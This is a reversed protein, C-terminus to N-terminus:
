VEMSERVKKLRPWYTGVKCEFGILSEIVGRVKSSEKVGERGQGGGGVEEWGGWFCWSICGAKVLGLEKGRVGAPCVVEGPGEHAVSHGRVVRGDGEVVEEDRICRGHAHIPREAIFAYQDGNGWSM